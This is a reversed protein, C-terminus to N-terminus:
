NLFSEFFVKLGKWETNRVEEEAFYIRTAAWEIEDLPINEENYYCLLKFLEM